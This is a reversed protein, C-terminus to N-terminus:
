PGQWAWLASRKAQRKEDDTLSFDNKYPTSEFSGYTPNAIVIWERGWRAKNDEWIKQREDESGKYDDVFDGFNDGIDLLIRYNKAIVARRTGKASKWDPQEEQTLVTDVKASLPFKYMELNERTAPEEDKSRNTVYFVTVGKAAAYQTFELAGPIPLSSKSNVFATWSKPDFDTGATINWAQYASNDLLTEDVDLVVAPPLNGFKGTQEAPAATWRRDKLAQDLRIRALAFATEANGKFEVSHQTWLVANLNDNASVAPAASESKMKEVVACGSLGGTLLAALILATLPARPHRARATTMM